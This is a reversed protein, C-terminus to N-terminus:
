RYRGAAEIKMNPGSPRCPKGRLRSVLAAALNTTIRDHSYTGGTMAVPRIGDFEYRLEQRQEWALFQARTMTERLAVNMRLLM